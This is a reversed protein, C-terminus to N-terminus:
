RDDNIWDGPLEDRIANLTEETRARVSLWTRDDERLIVDPGTFWRAGPPADCLPYEPLPLRTYRQELLEPETEDLDRSDSLEYPAHLSESLIIEIFAVSLRDLWSEWREAQEDALDARILVPPDPHELDTLLVGWSAAGQNEVRFVLAEKRDDVHLERPSLLVDQNSTLDRRRGFLRYAERLVAPLAVGLREEAAILDKEDWGDNAGLPNTWHDTFGRIFRWAGSRDALGAALERRIDFGPTMACVRDTIAAHPIGM